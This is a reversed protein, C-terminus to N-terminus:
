GSLTAFVTKSFFSVMAGIYLAMELSQLCPRDVGLCQSSWGGITCSCSCWHSLCAHWSLTVFSCAGHCTAVGCREATHKSSVRDLEAQSELRNEIRRSGQHQLSHCHHACACVCPCSCHGHMPGSQLLPLVASARARHCPNCTHALADAKTVM